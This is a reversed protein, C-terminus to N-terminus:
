GVHPSNSREPNVVTKIAARWRNADVSMYVLHATYFVNVVVIWGTNSTSGDFTILFWVLLSNVGGALWLAYQDNKRLGMRSGGGTQSAGIKYFVVSTAIGWMLIITSWIYFLGPLADLLDKPTISDM